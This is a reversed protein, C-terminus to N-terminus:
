FTPFFIIEISDISTHARMHKQRRDLHAYEISYSFSKTDSRQRHLLFFLSFFHLSFFFSFCIILYNIKWKLRYTNFAFSHECYYIFCFMSTRLSSISIILPEFWQKWKQELFVCVRSFHRYYFGNLKASPRIPKVLKM